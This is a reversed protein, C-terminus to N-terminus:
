QVQNLDLQVKMMLIAKEHTEKVEPGEENVNTRNM